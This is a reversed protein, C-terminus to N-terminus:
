GEVERQALASAAVARVDPDEHFMLRAAISAIEPSTDRDIPEIRMVRGSRLAEELEPSNLVCGRQVLPETVFEEEAEQGAIATLVAQAVPRAREWETNPNWGLAGAAARSALELQTM